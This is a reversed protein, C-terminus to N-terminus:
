FFIVESVCRLKEVHYRFSQWCSEKPKILFYLHFIVYFIWNFTIIKTKKKSYIWKYFAYMEM